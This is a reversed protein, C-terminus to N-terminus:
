TNKMAASVAFFLLVLVLFLPILGWLSSAGGSWGYDDPYHYTVTANTSDEINDVTVNVDGGPMNYTTTSGNAVTNSVVTNEATDNLEITVESNTADVTTATSNLNTTVEYTVGETHSITNSAPENFADIAIPALFAALLATVLVAVAITIGKNMM